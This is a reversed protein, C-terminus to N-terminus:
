HLTTTKKRTTDFIVVYLRRPGHVGIALTLEIDSTRSPGTIFTVAPSLDSAMLELVESMTRRIKNAELLCIHSEPILSSLRNFEKKSELVLTGTEAIALQASTIGVDCSFLESITAKNLIEAETQIASTLSLVLDSNSLAITRPSLEDVIEQLATAAEEPNSVVSAQGNVGRLRECFTTILDASPESRNGDGHLSATGGHVTHSDNFRASAALNSRVARLIDNRSSSTM